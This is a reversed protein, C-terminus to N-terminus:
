IAMKYDDYLLPCQSGTLRHTHWACTFWQLPVLRPLAPRPSTRAMAPRAHLYPPSPATHQPPRAHHYVQSSHTDWGGLEVFFVDREAKLASRIKIM